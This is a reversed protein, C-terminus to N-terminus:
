LPPPHPPKWSTSHDWKAAMRWHVTMIPTSSMEQMPDDQLEWMSNVYGNHHDPKTFFQLTLINQKM